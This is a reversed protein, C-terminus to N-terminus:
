VGEFFAKMLEAFSDSTTHIKMIRGDARCFEVILTNTAPIRIAQYLPASKSPKNEKAECFDITAVSPKEHSVTRSSREELKRRLQTSSIGTAARVTSGPFKELLVYIQQWIWEPIQEQVNKKNTRWDTMAKVLSDLTVGSTLQAQSPFETINSDNSM